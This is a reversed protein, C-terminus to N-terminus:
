RSLTGLVREWPPVSKIEITRGLPCETLYILNVDKSFNRGSIKCASSQLFPFYNFKIGVEPTAAKLRVSHITQELIEGSGQWFYTPEYNKRQFLEVTGSSWDFDSTWIREYSGGRQRLRDKWRPNHAFIATVNYLNLYEQIGAERRSLFSEPISDTYWWINHMHSSALLPKRTLLTLPALHGGNLEHMVCGSFLIRGQGSHKEIQEILASGERGLFQFQALTRNRLTAAAVLPGTLLFGGLLASILWSFKAAPQEARIFLQEAALATPICFLLGLVILMRDLELQPKLPFLFAGLLILWLSTAIFVRRTSGRLLLLGPIGLFILLPNTSNVTERVLKTSKKLNVSDARHKTTRPIVAPRLTIQTTPQGAQAAAPETHSSKETSLFKGVQSSSWFLAAWPLNLLLFGLILLKFYRKRLLRKFACLGLGFLPLLVIGALPWLLMLSGSALLLVAQPASLEQDQNLLKAALVLNLALLAMSCAFGITGYSLTWKFWLLSPSLSLLAALAAARRSAAALRAAFFTAAPVLGFLLAAVILSYVKEVPFSYILPAGLLFVNLVGTSFFQRVDIGGDWLPHYFPVWPFNDKLLMLRYLFVAHDDSFIPRGGSEKLFTYFLFAAALPAVAGFIWYARRRLILATCIGGLLIEGRITPAQFLNYDSCMWDSVFVLLVGISFGGPDLSLKRYDFRILYLGGLLALLFPILAYSGSPLLRFTKDTAWFWTVSSFIGFLLIACGVSIIFNATGGARPSIEHAAAITM